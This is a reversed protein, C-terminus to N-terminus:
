RRSRELIGVEVRDRRVIVCARQRCAALQDVERTLAEVLVRDGLVPAPEPPGGDVLQAQRGVMGIHGRQRALEGAHRAVLGVVGLRELELLARERDARRHEALLVGGHRRIQGVDRDDAEVHAVTLLGLFQLLTCERRALRGEAGVMGVGRLGDIRQAREVEGEAVVFAGLREVQACELQALPYQSRIM